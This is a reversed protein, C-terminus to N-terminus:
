STKITSFSKMKMILSGSATEKRFVKPRNAGNRWFEQLFNHMLMEGITIPWVNLENCAGAYSIESSFYFNLNDRIFTEMCCTCRKMLSRVIEANKEKYLKLNLLWDNQSSIKVWFHILLNNFISFWTSVFNFISLVMIYFGLFGDVYSLALVVWNEFFLM